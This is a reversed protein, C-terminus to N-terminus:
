NGGKKFYQERVEEQLCIGKRVKTAKKDIKETTGLYGRETLMRGFLQASFPEEGSGECFSKYARYLDGAIETVLEDRTCCASIFEALADSEQRYGETAASVAEAAGLGHELWDACGKLVWNLIGSKEAQLKERLRKDRKEPPITVAYPILRIRRWIGGDTGRIVPKHNTALWLKFTPKFRFFEKHLFRAKLVDGGTLQKVLGEALRQRSEGESAAVLRAGVLDAIDNRVGENKKVAFTEFQATNGYDGFTELMIDQETSKGNAGGGHGIFLADESTKGTATYGYARQKFAVLDADEGCITNQFQDWLPCAATPDFTVPALKTILDRPDHDKIKGTRLDITGNEVNFAMPDADLEEVNVTVGPITKALEVAHGLAASRECSLSHRIWQERTGSDKATNAQACLERATDLAFRRMMLEGDDVRWRTEDWVLYGLAACYRFRHGFLAHLREANGYDTRFFELLDPPSEGVEDDQSQKFTVSPGPRYGDGPTKGESAIDLTMQGYTRGDSSHKEDWKPRMLGSLRFLYDARAIDYNCWWLLHSLLALDAASSDNNYASLNGDWLQRIAQGNKAAFMKELLQADDLRMGSHTASSKSAGASQKQKPADGFIRRHIDEIQAQRAAIPREAGISQGTLTLYRGDQYMERKGKRRGTPPLKGRALIRVGTGSPSLTTYSDLADIVELADASIESTVPDVCSDYDVGFLDDDEILVYGIGDCEGREYAARAEDFSAWTSSDDVAALEKPNRAQCPPKTWKYVGKSDRKWKYRWNVFRRQTKLDEPIGDFDV